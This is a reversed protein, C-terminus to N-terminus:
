HPGNGGCWGILFLPAALVLGLTDGLAYVYRQEQRDHWQDWWSLSEPTMRWCHPGDPVPFQEAGAVARLRGDEGVEFGLPVGEPLRFRGACARERVDGDLYLAYTSTRPTPTVRAPEGTRHEAVVRGDGAVFATSCGGALLAPLVFWATWNRPM